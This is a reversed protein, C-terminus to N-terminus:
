PLSPAKPLEPLGPPRDEGDEGSRDRGGGLRDRVDEPLEDRVDEPLEEVLEGPLDGLVDEPLAGILEELLDTPLASLGSLPQPPTAASAPSEGLEVDSAQRLPLELTPSEFSISGGAKSPSYTPTDVQALDLRISHGPPLPWHNGYLPLRLTGATKDYAPTDIRYTGRSMLLTPRGSGEPPVDWIRAHLTATSGTILRYPVKVEGLGVYTVARPLAESVATYRGPAQEAKSTRCREAQTGGLSGVVADTAPGDPDSAGSASTQVDGRTYSVELRGRALDEPTKGRVEMAADENSDPDGDNECLTPQSSVTTQQEHSGRIHSQLFGFAQANLRRWQSTRNQGRPHGIDAMAVEIPWRSDLRKLYKFQRFAEVATFLDDTWGQIAFIAVKRGDRQAAFGEDQYYSGRFETLGRRVQRIIADEAGAADYPDTEVRLKWVDVNIPGEENPTTRDGKEFGFPQQIGIAYFGNVYSEKLTGLPYGDGTDSNPEGLSSEHLDDDDPGGPHGSPALSYGLDTWSYKPVAVQLDLVPLRDAPPLGATQEAPFDWTPQSAQLWSEGGGYSYGSVAVQSPDVDEYAKAVLASLWQTDRIEFERSKLQIAGSPKSASGNPASPTPPQNASPPETRFGRATYNIVYYGHRAFWHNNWRLSDAGNGEDDNSEWAHKDAGFGHLLTILKRREGGGSSPLTVDVDLPAGDFSPVTGSCIRDGSPYETCDLLETIDPPAQQSSPPSPPSQASAGASLGLSAVVVLALLAARRPLAAGSAEQLGQM